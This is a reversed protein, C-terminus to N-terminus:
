ADRVEQACDLVIQRWSSPLQGGASLALQQSLFDEVPIRAEFQKLTCSCVAAMTEPALESPRDASCVSLLLASAETSYREGGNGGCGAVALCSLALLAVTARTLM